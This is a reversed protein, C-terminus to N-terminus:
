LLTIIDKHDYGIEILQKFIERDFSSAIIVKIDKILAPQQILLGNKKKDSKNKDNDLYGKVQIQDRDLVRYLFDSLEGTGFLYAPFPPYEKYVEKLTDKVVLRYDIGKKFKKKYEKLEYQQTYRENSYTIRPIIAEVNLDRRIEMFIGIETAVNKFYRLAFDLPFGGEKIDDEVYGPITYNIQVLQWRVNGLTPLHNDRAIICMHKWVEETMYREHSFFFASNHFAWPTIIEIKAGDRCIRGIERFVHNPSKLHEFFHSSYVYEVSQDPLPIPEKELNLVIDVGPYNMIDRGTFGKRKSKGRGIDVKYNENAGL